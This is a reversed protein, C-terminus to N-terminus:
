ADVLDFAHLIKQIDGEEMIALCASLVRRQEIPRLAKVFEEADEDSEVTWPTM